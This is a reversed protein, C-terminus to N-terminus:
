RGERSEAPRQARGDRELGKTRTPMKPDRSVSRGEPGSRTGPKEERSHRSKKFQRERAPHLQGWFESAQQCTKGKHKVKINVLKQFFRTEVIM